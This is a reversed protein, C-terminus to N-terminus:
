VLGAALLNVVVEGYLPLPAVAQRCDPSCVVRRVEEWNCEEVGLPPFLNAVGPELITSLYRGLGRVNVEPVGDAFCSETGVLLSGELLVVGGTAAEWEVMAVGISLPAEAEVKSM